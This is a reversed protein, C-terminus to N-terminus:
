TRVFREHSWMESLVEGVADMAAQLKEQAPRVEVMPITAIRPLLELLKQEATKKDALAKGIDRNLM